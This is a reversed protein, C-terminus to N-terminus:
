LYQTIARRVSQESRPMQVKVVSSRGLIPSSLRRLGRLRSSLARHRLIRAAAVQSRTKITLRTTPLLSTGSNSSTAKTSTHGNKRTALPKLQLIGEQALYRKMKFGGCEIGLRINSVESDKELKV